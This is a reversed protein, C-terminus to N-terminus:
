DRARKKGAEAAEAAAAEAGGVAARAAADLDARAEEETVGPMDPRQAVGEGEGAAAEAARLLAEIDLPADGAQRRVGDPLDSADLVLPVSEGDGDGGLQQELSAASGLLEGLRTARQRAAADSDRLAAPLAIADDSDLASATAAAPPEAGLTSDSIQLLAVLAAIEDNSARGRRADPTGSM